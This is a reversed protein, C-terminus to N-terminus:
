CSVMIRARRLFGCLSRCTTSSGPSRPFPPESSASRRAGALGTWPSWNPWGRPDMGGHPNRPVIRLATSGLGLVELAKAVASHVGEVAYATLWPAHRVGDRRVEVGLARTRAVALAGLTAQSTGTVLIGSATEPFPFGFGPEAGTWGGRTRHVHRCSGQGRLQQEHDGRGDGDAVPPWDPGTFGVSFVRTPTARRLPSFTPSSNGPLTGIHKIGV